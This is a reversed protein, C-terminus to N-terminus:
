TKTWLWYEADFVSGNGNKAARSDPFLVAYEREVQSVETKMDAQCLLRSHDLGVDRQSVRRGRVSDFVVSWAFKDTVSRRVSRVELGPDDGVSLLKWCSYKAAVYKRSEKSYRKPLWLGRRDFLLQPFLCVLRGGGTIYTGVM